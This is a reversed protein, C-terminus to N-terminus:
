ATAAKRCECVAAATTAGGLLGHRKEAIEVLVWGTGDCKRCGFQSPREREAMRRLEGASPIWDERTLGDIVEDMIATAAQESGSSELADVLDKLAERTLPYGRHGHLRLIQAACAKRLDTM